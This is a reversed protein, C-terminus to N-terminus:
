GDSVNEPLDCVSEKQFGNGTIYLILQQTPVALIFKELAFQAKDVQSGELIFCCARHILPLHHINDVKAEAFGEACDKVTLTEETVSIILVGNFLSFLLFFFCGIGWFVFWPDSPFLMPMVRIQFENMQDTHM